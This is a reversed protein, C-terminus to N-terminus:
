RLNFILVLIFYEQCTAELLEKMILIILIKEFTIQLNELDILVRIANM